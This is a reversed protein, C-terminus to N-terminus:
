FIRYDTWVGMSCLRVYVDTFGVWVLSVWAWAMHKRNLCSVANYCGGCKSKSIRDRWGGILHRLSHCGLTYGSLLIVNITLV